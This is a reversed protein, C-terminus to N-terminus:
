VHKGVESIIKDYLQIENTRNLPKVEQGRRKTLNEYCRLLRSLDDKFSAVAPHEVLFRELTKWRSSEISSHVLSDVLMLEYIVSFIQVFHTYGSRYLKVLNSAAELDEKLLGHVNIDSKNMEPYAEDAYLFVHPLLPYLSKKFEELTCAHLDIPLEACAYYTLDLVKQPEDCIVLLDIDSKQDFDGRAFSGLLLIAHLRDISLLLPLVANLPKPIRDKAMDYRSWLASPVVRYLRSRRDSPNPHVAILKWALMKRLIQKLHNVSVHSLSRIDNFTFDKYPYLDQLM